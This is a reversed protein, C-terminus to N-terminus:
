FIAIQIDLISAKFYSSKMAISSCNSFKYGFLYDLSRLLHILCKNKEIENKDQSLRIFLDISKDIYDDIKSDLSEKSKVILLSWFLISIIFYNLENLFLDDKNILKELLKEILEIIQYKDESKENNNLIFPLIILINIINSSETDNLLEQKIYKIL